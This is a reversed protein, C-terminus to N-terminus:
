PFDNIRFQLYLYKYVNNYLKHFILKQYECDMSDLPNGSKGAVKPKVNTTAAKFKDVTQHCFLEPYVIISM